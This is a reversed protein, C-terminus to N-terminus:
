YFKSILYKAIVESGYYGVHNNDRYATQGNVKPSCVKDDCFIEPLRAIQVNKREQGIQEVIDLYPQTRALYSPKDLACTENIQKNGIKVRRLDYCNQPNFGLEPIDIALIIKKDNPIADILKLLGQKFVVPKAITEDKMDVLNVVHKDVAGFGESTMYNIGRSTIIVTKISSYKNLYELALRNTLDCDRTIGPGYVKTGLGPPCGAHNFVAASENRNKLEKELGWFLQEAHSDGIVLTSLPLTNSEDRMCDINRDDYKEKCKMEKHLHGYKFPLPGDKLQTNVARQPLGDFKIILLGALLTTVMMALLIRVTKKITVPNKITKIPNEILHYTIIALVFSMCFAGIRPWRALTADNQNIWLISYLPWHWLYLSYSIKGIYVSLRNTLISFSNGFRFILFMATGLTVLINLVWPFKLDYSNNFFPAIVMVSAILFLIWYKISNEKLTIRVQLALSGILLEWLRCHPLFFSISSNVESYYAYLVLSVLAIAAFALTEVKKNKRLLLALLPFLLYFQEEVGLSWLHLLPKASSTIDFYGSQFFNFINGSFLLSASLNKAYEVFETDTLVFWGAITTAITVTLFAPMLRQIRRKFFGVLSFSNLAISTTIINTVLYGSIVFFVDVGLFGKPILISHFHYIVVALVAVARLGDIDPRYKPHTLDM